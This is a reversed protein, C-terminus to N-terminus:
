STRWARHPAPSPGPSRAGRGRAPRAQPRGQPRTELRDAARAAGPHPAVFLGDRTPPARAGRVAPRARRRSRRRPHRHPRRADAPVHRRDGVPEVRPRPLPEADTASGRGLRTARRRRPGVGLALFQGDLCSLAGGDRSRAPWRGASSASSPSRWGPARGRARRGDVVARDAADPLGSSWRAAPTPPRDAGGARPAAAGAVAAPVRRSRTSRRACRGCRRSCRPPRRRRRRARRRRDDVLRRGRVSPRCGPEDAPVDFLRLSTTAEEPADRVLGGLGAAGARRRDLGLGAHRRGRDRLPVLTSSWRPSWASRRRRRRAAGLVARRGADATARVFTGDALVLEVATVANCQLGLRRAYWGIGGGLSYGVVGVDPSSPHRRPWGTGRRRADVVDGWLVGAGSAPRDAARRRRAARDDGLHAAAGRRGAPGRLPPAGHGTGQPAVQLGAAAAARVVEAVEDPFAPYAVAAPHDDAQLNWPRAPWTTAGPRRAPVGRRRVARAPREARRPQAAVAAAPDGADEEAPGDVTGGSSKLIVQSAARASPRARARRAGHGPTLFLRQAVEHVGLGAAALDLVQRERARDASRRRATTRARPRRAAAARGRARTASRRARRTQAATSRPGCCRCPRTTPSRPRAAWRAAPGPGTRARGRDAGAADVAERLLRRRRGARAARRGAAAGARPPEARGLPAAADVEEEALAVAEDARGLGALARPRSAAGRTGVGPQRHRRRRRGTSLAGAGGRHRGEAVLLRAIAQRLLRAGEGVRPLALARGRGAPGGSTAATSTAASQSRRPTRTASGPAAGSGTRSSHAGGVCALAEDCSAAAGSGSARGSTPRCRRSCRAARTRRAGPGPAWFDGVDDDAVMLVDRRRGLVAQQGGDLLRDGDLAFRALAVARDRDAGDLLRRSPWRPPWCARGPATATPSRAGARAGARPPRARAHLRSGSAAGAAGPAPRGAGDPLAPPRRAPSRRRPEARRRRLGPHPRDAIALEARPRRTTPAPTPRAAPARRRGAGDVCRRSSGSSSCCTAGSAHRRAAGGAGAAPLHGRQRVRRPRRGDARRGAAGRGDRRRRAAPRLLLHAAVQEASAGAGRLVRGGARPAARARGGAPRRYVADRVLPHVFRWRSSTRPRDRRPGARGAGRRHAGRAARGARGGGAAARRRRAGRGRPGGDVVAPPLRRLRMLVLSSVARSGVAVCRTPTRPTRGCATPRWRACCSACCCRTARPRGTAPRPRVRRRRRASGGRSWRGPPRRRRVAAGPRLVLAAPNSRSSPWCRGRRSRDEGTRVTGVVLVPLGRAPAVLYALFRLSAGDCWQVDDVALLLPGEATLNVALWYLGHLVAFSGDAGARRRAVPRVGRPRQGGRRRCCSGRPRTSWSPSSCSACPASASRGSWSAAGRPSCGCRAGRGGAAAGRGAPPDQRHGAPGEILVCGRSARPWSTWRPTCRPWSATATSAPGRAATPPAAAPPRRRGAAPAAARDLAPSQALVEAELTACRRGRTSAWSTPWRRGPGACRPWRTPRGTRATCRWCWCGGASRACRSRPSWRRSSPCSCRRGRRAGAPRGAAARPGGRAARDAPRDGGGGVARRRVRGAGPGAVAGAGDRCRARGTPRIPAARGAALLAEFRWADVADPRCGSPTAAGRASSSRRAPGPARQGAAAPPAPPSVYSQLAGAANAPPASAGCRLRRAARGARGRRPGAAARRARRAARRGGLDLPRRRLSATLEGLLSVRLRVAGDVIRGPNASRHRRCGGLGQGADASGVLLRRLRRHPPTADASQGRDGRAPGYSASTDEARASRRTFRTSQRSDM